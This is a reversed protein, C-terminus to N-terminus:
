GQEKGLAEAVQKRLDDREDRAHDLLDYANDRQDKTESLTALSVTLAQRANAIQERLEDRDQTVELRLLERSNIAAVRDPEYGLPEPGFLAVDIEHLLRKLRHHNFEAEDRLRQSEYRRAQEKSTM